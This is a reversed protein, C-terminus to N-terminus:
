DEDSLYSKTRRMDTVLDPNGDAKMREILKERNDLKRQIAKVEQDTIGVIQIFALEGFITQRTELETDSVFLISTIQSDTNLHLPSGNNNLFHLPEFWRKTRYTYSALNLLLSVAWLNDEVSTERLKFTMEYGWKSYVGGFAEERGYLESMGFSVLHLYGKPSTYFSVGDLFQTGGLYARSTAAWHKPEQGPYLARFADEIADWGPAFDDDEKLHKLFEEKTM